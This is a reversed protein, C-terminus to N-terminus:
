ESRTWYREIEELSKGTTEPVLKWVILMYPVCMLAFLFFTGAPTLNQLMWPTLQGILYTGIWLAFGAISMALGRVKTPYMESLLVFVVACISVACCFVYFLFFVLLFLSSVGLSDGFLFYLGILILSVVMGSVGYYVLKKRGVKDIIVLALITTLTNVLGVLVQYFLSDGGSLGANEFISPGYYLVANVGMFQGLIAICVGIIVAKFIGPKMLLSWESRTESTLVSKTEKLQSKAETISNYIKELISVAKLEKGRVILWRPSEPIFFIIIFFLIAPLTEMGLMGRWVETIFVKNLWDVSLQTGSEAWALLQYNVLYAGLFGVTVALQYLSVLRGRYQAVAVESIYLPSVISVVGIGVGGIIRYIVLQTFDASLACGLASTSFLVASIVMTLKRGLKDSLIGAFLVGVISGVLACGVYWGQQLTDLQFLQTVQAITGSIVATDYGFLFGGLAAVVSLFILYGFNITSKM